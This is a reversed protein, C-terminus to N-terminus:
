FSSTMSKKLMVKLLNCVPQHIDCVRSPGGYGMFKDHSDVGVKVPDHIVMQPLM